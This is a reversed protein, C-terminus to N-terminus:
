RHAAAADAGRDHLPQAGVADLDHREVAVGAGIQLDIDRAVLEGVEAVDVHADGVGRDGVRDRGGM